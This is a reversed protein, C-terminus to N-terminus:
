TDQTSSPPACANSESACKGLGLLDLTRQAAANEVREMIDSTSSSKYQPCYVIESAVGTGPIVEKGKTEESHFLIVDYFDEDYEDRVWQLINNENPGSYIIVEDVCKLGELVAKREEAPVACFGKKKVLYDDDNIVVILRDCNRRCFQLCWVHAQTLITFTGSKVGIREKDWEM